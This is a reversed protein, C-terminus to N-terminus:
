GNFPNKVTEVPATSIKEPLHESQLKAVIADLNAKLTLAMALGDTDRSLDVNGSITVRDTRNEISLEGIGIVESENDFPSIVDDKGTTSPNSSQKTM